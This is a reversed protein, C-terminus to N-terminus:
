VKKGNLMWVGDERTILVSLDDDTQTILGTKVWANLQDELKRTYEYQYADVQHDLAQVQSQVIANQLYLMYATEASIAKTIYLDKLTAVYDTSYIDHKQINILDLGDDNSILNNDVMGAILFANQQMAITISEQMDDLTHLEEPPIDRFYPSESIMEVIQNALKKSVNISAKINGDDLFEPINDPAVMGDPWHISATSRLNGDPTSLSLEELKIEAGSSFVSPLMSSLRQQLESRYLEGRYMVEHYASLMKVIAQSNLDALSIRVKIPGLSQKALQIKKIDIERQGYIRDHAEDIKGKFQLGSITLTSKEAGTWSFESLELDNRGMWLGSDTRYMDIMLDLQPISVSNKKDSFSFSDINIVNKIKDVGPWLWLNAQINKVHFHMNKHPHAYHLDALSLHKFLNGGFTILDDNNQFSDQSLGFWLLLKEMEPAAVLTTHIAALGFRSPLNAVYKFIVPGHQIHQVVTFNYHSPLIEKEVGLSVLAGQFEPNIIEVSLTADSCTWSRKYDVIQIRFSGQSNFFKILKNYQNEVFFGDVYPSFVVALIIIALLALLKRM